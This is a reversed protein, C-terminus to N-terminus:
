GKMRGPRLPNITLDGEVNGVGTGGEAVTMQGVGRDVRAIVPATGRAGVEKVQDILSQLAAAFDPDAGSEAKLSAAIRDVTPATPAPLGSEAEQQLRVLGMDGHGLRGAILGHAREGLVDVTADLAEDVQGDARAAVRHAKRALWGFACGVAIEIGTM